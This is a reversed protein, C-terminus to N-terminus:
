KSVSESQFMKRHITEFWDWQRDTCGFNHGWKKYRSLQGLLFDIDLNSLTKRNDALNEFGDMIAALKGRKEQDWVIQNIHAPRDTMWSPVHALTGM